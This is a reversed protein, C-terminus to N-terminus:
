ARAAKVADANDDAIGDRVLEKATQADCEFVTNCQLLVGERWHDCLIRVEVAEKGAESKQRAM